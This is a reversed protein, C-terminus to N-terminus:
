LHKRENNHKHPNTLVNSFVGLKHKPKWDAWDVGESKRSDYRRQEARIQSAYRVRGTKTTIKSGLTKLIKTAAM